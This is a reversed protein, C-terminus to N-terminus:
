PRGEAERSAEERSAEASQREHQWLRGAPSDLDDMAQAPDLPPDTPRTGIDDPGSAGTGFNKALDGEVDRYGEQTPIGPSYGTPKEIMDTAHQDAHEPRDPDRARGPAIITREGDRPEEHNHEHPM